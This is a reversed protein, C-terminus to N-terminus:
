CIPSSWLHAADVRRRCFVSFVDSFLHPIRGMLRGVATASYALSTDRTLIGGHQVHDVSEVFLALHRRTGLVVAVMAQMEVTGFVVVDVDDGGAGEDGVVALRRAAADEHDVGGAAGREVAKDLAVRIVGVAYPLPEVDVAVVLLAPRRDDRATGLGPTREWPTYEYIPHKSQDRRFTRNDGFVPAFASM